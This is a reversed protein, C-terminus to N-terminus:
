SRPPRFPSDEPEDDSLYGRAARPASTDGDDDTELTSVPPQTDPLSTDSGAQQVAPIGHPDTQRTPAAPYQGTSTPPYPAPQRRRVFAFFIFAGVVVMFGSMILAGIGSVVLRLVLVRQEDPTLTFDTTSSADDTPASAALVQAGYDFVQPIGTASVASVFSNETTASYDASVVRVTYQDPDLRQFCLTGQAATPANEMLRTDIILNDSNALTASIGRIIPPEGGDRLANANRDEFARVCVQGGSQQAQVLVGSLLLIGALLVTAYRSM